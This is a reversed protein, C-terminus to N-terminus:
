FYIKIEEDVYIERLGIKLDIKPNYNLYKKSYNIECFINKNLESLVHM